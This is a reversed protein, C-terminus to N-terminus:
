DYNANKQYTHITLTMMLISMNVVGVGVSLSGSTMMVMLNQLIIVLYSTHSTASVRLLGSM